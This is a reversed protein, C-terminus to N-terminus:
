TYKEPDDCLLFYNPWVGQESPIEVMGLEKFGLKEYWLSNEKSQSALCVTKRGKAATKFIDKVISSAYGRRQHSPDTAIINTYWGNAYQLRHFAQIWHKCSFISSNWWKHLNEPLSSFFQNWGQTRQNESSFIQKGPCFWAGISHITQSIDDRVVYFTGEVACAGLISRFLPAQLNRNGGTMSDLSLDVQVM